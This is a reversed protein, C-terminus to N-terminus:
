MLSLVHYKDRESQSIESGVIGGLDMWPTTFPLMEDEHSLLVGNYVDRVCGLKGQEDM